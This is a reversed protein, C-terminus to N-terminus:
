GGGELYHYPKVLRIPVGNVSNLEGSWVLRYLKKLDRRDATTMRSDAGYNMISFKSHKGFIESAWETESIQAFFHRLGFVHGFEHALTEVQEKASQELLTPFINLQNRGGSPFFASALVCGSVNCRSSEEVVVEFDWGNSVESFRVPLFSGWAGLGQRMLARIGEKAANVDEFQAMSAANFRWRLVLGNAWLPVFGESADLVLETPARNDPTRFGRSDTICRNGKGYVHEYNKLAASFKSNGAKKFPTDDAKRKFPQDGASASSAAPKRTSM